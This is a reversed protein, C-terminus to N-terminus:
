SAFFKFVNLNNKLWGIWYGIIAGTSQVFFILRAKRIGYKPLWRREFAESLTLLMDESRASPILMDLLLGKPGTRESRYGFL